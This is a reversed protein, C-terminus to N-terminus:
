LRKGIRNVFAQPRPAVFVAEFRGRLADSGNRVDMATHAAERFNFALPRFFSRSDDLDGLSGRADVAACFRAIDRAWDTVMTIAM